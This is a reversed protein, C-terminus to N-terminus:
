NESPREVHDIVLVEVPAKRPELRLGLQETLATLLSPGTADPGHGAAGQANANSEASAGSASGMPTWNLTFDYNGKLGTEDVVVRGGADANGSLWGAFFSMSVSAGHLEGRSGGWLWPMHQKGSETATLKPGDKAVVMAFVPLVKERTSVKLKFRDALLSQVMLRYQDFREAPALKQLAVAEADALKANIDFRESNTWDPGKQLQDDARVDYALKILEAVTASEARFRGEAIGYNTAGSNGDSPKVTAVEFSLTQGDHPHLLLAGAQQAGTQQAWGLGGAALAVVLGYVAVGVRGGKVM